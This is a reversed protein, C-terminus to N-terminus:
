SMSYFSLTKQEGLHRDNGSKFIALEVGQRLLNETRYLGVALKM